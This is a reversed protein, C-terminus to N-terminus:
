LNKAGVAKSIIAKNENNSGNKMVFYLKLFDVL